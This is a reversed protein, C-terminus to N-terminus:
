EPRRSESSIEQLQVKVENLVRLKVDDPMQEIKENLSSEILEFAQRAEARAHPSPLNMGLFEAHDQLEQREKSQLDDRAALATYKMLREHVIPDRVTELDFLPTTLLQDPRLGRVDFDPKEVLVEDGRRKFMFVQRKDLSTVILPSHTTVVFQVNKFLETLARVIAQQWSPHMHADVEDVLVLATQEEPREDSGFVEYMRQLLVGVWGIVSTTGQSLSELPVTVGGTTKVRIEFTRPEISDFALDVDPTIADLVAFFHDFLARAVKADDSEGRAQYDLNILWQKLDDLRPDAASSALPTVDSVLPVAASRVSSPGSLRKWSVTRVPPFGIALLRGIEVPSLGGHVTVEGSLQRYLKLLYPEGGVTIEISGDSAGSRLLRRATVADLKEGCLGAAIARLVISKGRGNNGLFLNWDRELDLELSPFPGINRLVVRQVRVDTRDPHAVTSPTGKQVAEALQTVVTTLSRAGDSPNIEILTTQPEHRLLNAEVDSSAVEAIVFRRSNSVSRLDMIESFSRVEAPSLGLFVIAHGSLLSQLASRFRRAEFMARRLASPGFVYGSKSDGYLEVFPRRGTAGMAEILAESDGFRIPQTEGVMSPRLGCDLAVNIIAAFPLSELAEQLRGNPVYRSFFPGAIQRLRGSRIKISLEDAILDTRGRSLAERLVKADELLLEGQKAAEDIFMRMLQSMELMGAAVALRQGAVLVARQGAIASVLELPLESPTVLPPDPFRAYSPDVSYSSRERESRSKAWRLSWVSLGFSLLFAGVLMVAFSAWFLQRARREAALNRQAVALVGDNTLYAWRPPAAALLRVDATDAFNEPLLTSPLTPVSVIRKTTAALLVDGYFVMAGLDYEDWHIHEVFRQGSLKGIALRGEGVNVAAMIGDPGLAEIRNAFAFQRASGAKTNVVVTPFKATDAPTLAVQDIGAVLRYGADALTLSTAELQGPGWRKHRALIGVSGSENVYVLLSNSAYGMMWAERPLRDTETGKWPDKWVIYRRDLGPTDIAIEAGDPSVAWVRTGGIVVRQSASMVLQGNSESFSLVRVGDATEETAMLRGNPSFWIKTVARLTDASRVLLPKRANEADDRSYILLAFGGAMILLGTVVFPLPWLRSLSKLM